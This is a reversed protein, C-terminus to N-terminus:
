VKSYYPSRDRFQKKSINQLFRSKPEEEETDPDESDRSRAIRNPNKIRKPISTKSAKRYIEIEGKVPSPRPSRGYIEAARNMSNMTFEYSKPEKKKIPKRKKFRVPPFHNEEDM